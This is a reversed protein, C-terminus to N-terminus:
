QPAARRVASAITRRAEDEGLGARVAADALDDLDRRGAKLAECAAWYLGDNRNGEKQAAVWAALKGLDVGHRECPVGAPRPPELLRTVAQWDLGGTAGTRHDLLEYARGHVRSPPALVYGGASRFDIHHRPLKGNRQGTGAFYAHLGGSPTRVLAKAGTLMGARKLQNFAAWGDGDPKVDVDLVDPGPEGTAISVNAEPWRRWWAQIMMPSTSADLCGHTGPFPRKCECDRGGQCSPNDPRTPFVPWGAAAYRLAADLAGPNM